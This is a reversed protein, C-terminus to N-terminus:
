ESKICRLAFGLALRNFEGKRMQRWVDELRYSWTYPVFGGSEFEAYSYGKDFDILWYFNSGLDNYFPLKYFEGTFQYFYGHFVPNFRYTASDRSAITQWQNWFFDNLKQCDTITPIKWGGPCIGQEKNSLYDTLEFVNYFGQRADSMPGADPYIWREPIGNDTPSTKNPIINGYALDQTMWWTHEIKIATYSQNDRLDTFLTDGVLPIVNLVKSLTDLSGTIDLVQITVKHKGYQRFRHNATKDLSYDTDWIGDSNWDWRVKARWVDNTPDVSSSADFVFLTITDGEIPFITFGAQIETKPEESCGWVILSILCITSLLKINMFAENLEIGNQSNLGNRQRVIPSHIWYM